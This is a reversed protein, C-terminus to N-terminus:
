KDPTEPSVEPVDFWQYYTTKKEEILFRQQLRGAKFRLKATPRARADDPLEELKM